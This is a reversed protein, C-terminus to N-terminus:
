RAEGSLRQTAARTDIVLHELAVVPMDYQALFEEYYGRAAETRSLAEEVRGQELSALPSLVREVPDAFCYPRPWIAENWKLLRAAQSADGGAALWRAATIRDIAPVYPHDCGRRSFWWQEAEDWELRALARAARDRQGALALEFAALSRDLVGVSPSGSKRLAVRAEALGVRDQQAAAVVGDLWAVEARGEPSLERLSGLVTGRWRAVSLSDVGGAWRGVAALRYGYLAADPAPSTTAYRRVAVLGSDWAGRSAWALALALWQSAKIDRALTFQLVRRRVDIEARHFGFFSVGGITVEPPRATALFSFDTTDLAPTVGGLRVLDDLARHFGVIPRQEPASMLRVLEREARATGASDRLRAAIWSLHTWAEALDPNLELVRELAARAEAYGTGTLPGWHILADAYAFWAPWYDPFRETVARLRVLFASLSDTLSAEILLRDREPLAARHALYAARIVSNVPQGQWTGKTYDYRWYALWFSSDAEIAHGFATAAAEYQGIALLREGELFARLAPISRTTVAALSPSPVRGQQWIQRLLAWTASDTLAAIDDLSTTVSARAMPRLNGTEFLGLDLRVNGGTRVLSGYVFSSAGFRGALAAGRELSTRTLDGAQALVSLANAARIGGVGDLNASLTIALERGLRSLATDPAGPVFPIVAVSSASANVPGRNRLALVGASAGVLVVLVAIGAAIRRRRRPAADLVDPVERGETLAAAFQTATAFRDAPRQALARAIARHVAPPIVGEIGSSLGRFPPEGVLMEHLVCALSYVDARGDLDSTGAAQEPSMYSRTGVTLGAGTLTDGGAATIARAVGFDSVVAHGAEFLINEPKVDRHVVRHDHAYSLADAVERTIQVAEELPLRSQRDLHDRLSEGEVYPMVYYLFGEVEGSDYLPLIHPHTLRAAIEIERLFREPGLAAAIEPRLVKIAVRRRHKLDVALHVTAMGGRGLEREITYRGSLAAELPPLLDAV